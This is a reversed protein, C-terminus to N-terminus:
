SQAFAVIAGSANEEPQTHMVRELEPEVSWTRLRAIETLIDTRKYMGPSMTIRRRLLPKTWVVSYPSRITSKWSISAFGKMSSCGRWYRTPANSKDRTKKNLHVTLQRKRPSSSNRLGIQAFPSTSPWRKVSRAKVWKLHHRESPPSKVRIEELRLFGREPIRCGIEDSQSNMISGKLRYFQCTVEKLYQSRGWSPSDSRSPRQVNVANDIKNRTHEALVRRLKSFWIGETVLTLDQDNDKRKKESKVQDLTAIRQTISYAQFTNGDVFMEDASSTHVFTTSRTPIHSPQGLSCSLDAVCFTSYIIQNNIYM